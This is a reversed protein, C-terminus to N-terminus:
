AATEKTLSCDAGGQGQQPSAFRKPNPLINTEVALVDVFRVSRQKKKLQQMYNLCCLPDILAFRETACPFLNLLLLLPLLPLLLLFPLPILPLLLCPLPRVPFFLSRSLNHRNTFVGGTTSDSRPSRWNVQAEESSSILPHNWQRVASDGTFVCGGRDRERGRQRGKERGRESRGRMEKSIHSMENTNWFVPLLWVAPNQKGVVILWVSYLMEKGDEEETAPQSLSTKREARHAGLVASM